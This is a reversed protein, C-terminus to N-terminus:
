RGNHSAAAKKLHFELAAAVGFGHSLESVLGGQERVQMKVVDIANSPSALWYAYDRSLMSLDNWHDGAAFVQAPQIGLRRTLEALAAGKNYAAHSFRTYVDNRVVTLNPIGRSYNELFQNIVEADDQNGAILCFPSFTDEYVTAHFRANIWETIRPLDPIVRAFLEEHSRTCQANWEELGVYCVGNHCHIEREVLVLFDPEVSIRARGLAEMLSSMDRGTNIVWKAGRSQLDGLIQQLSEPIPPNEFEAFITGDFDTSILKIPLSM